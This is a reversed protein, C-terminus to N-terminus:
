SAPTTEPAVEFVVKPREDLANVVALVFDLFQPVLVTNLGFAPPEPTECAEKWYAHDAADLIIVGDVAANVAVEIAMLAKMAGLTKGWLSNVKCLRWFRRIDMPEDPKYIPQGAVNVGVVTMAPQGTRDDRLTRTVPVPIFKPM